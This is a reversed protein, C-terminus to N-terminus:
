FMNSLKLIIKIKIKTFNIKKFLHTDYANFKDQVLIQINQITTLQIRCMSFKNVSLKAFFKKHTKHLSVNFVIAGDTINWTRIM